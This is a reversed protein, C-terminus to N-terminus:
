SIIKSCNGILRSRLDLRQNRRCLHGNMQQPGIRPSTIYRQRGELQRAGTEEARNDGLASPKHDIVAPKPHQASSRAPQRADM